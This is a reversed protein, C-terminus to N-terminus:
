NFVLSLNVKDKLKLLVLDIDKEEMEINYNAMDANLDLIGLTFGRLKLTRLITMYQLCVGPKVREHRKPGFLVSSLKVSLKTYFRENQGLDMRQKSLYVREITGYNVIRRSNHGPLPFISKKVFVLGEKELAITEHMQTKRLLSETLAMFVFAYLSYSVLDIQFREDPSIITQKVLLELVVAGLALVVFQAAIPALKYQRRIDISDM